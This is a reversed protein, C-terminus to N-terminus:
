KELHSIEKFHILKLKLNGKNLYKKFETVSALPPGWKWFEKLNKNMELYNQRIPELKKESIVGSGQVVVAPQGTIFHWLVWAAGGIYVVNLTLYYSDSASSAQAESAVM